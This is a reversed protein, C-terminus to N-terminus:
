AVATWQAQDPGKWHGRALKKCHQEFAALDPMKPGSDIDQQYLKWLEDIPNIRTYRTVGEWPNDKTGGDCVLLGEGIFLDTCLHLNDKRVLRTLEEEYWCLQRDRLTTIIRNELEYPEAEKEDWFGHGIEELYTTSLGLKKCLAYIKRTTM